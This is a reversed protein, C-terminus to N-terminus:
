RRMPYIYLRKLANYPVGQIDASHVYNLYPHYGFAHPMDIEVIQHLINTYLGQRTAANVEKLVQDFWIEVDQSQYHFANLISRNSFLKFVFNYPSLYDPYFGGPYYSGWGGWYLHVTELYDFPSFNQHYKFDLWGIGLDIIEIGIQELSDKLYILFDERFDHGILYTYNWSSFTVAKWQADNWTMDGYGMSVVLERAKTLNYKAAQIAADYMPFNPAIPGNSRFVRGNQLEEIIYTYNLAFSIAQRWTKNIIKNNMGLSHYSLGQISTQLIITPDANFTPFLSSLSGILYDIRHGLMANNRITADNIVTFTIDEFYASERWYDDWRHLKVEIEAFYSNYYYGNYVFPGTGVIQNYLPHIYDYKSTSAPSLMYASTHCLLAEIVSFPAKLNITVSYENNITVPNGPDLIFTGNPFEWILHLPSLTQNLLGTGNMFWVIREFNWKVTSANFLT